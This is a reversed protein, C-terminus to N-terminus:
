RYSVTNDRVTNRAYLELSITGNSDTLKGNSISFKPQLQKIVSILEEALQKQTKAM